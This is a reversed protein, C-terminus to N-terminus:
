REGDRQSAEKKAAEAAAKLRARLPTAYGEKNVQRVRGIALGGDPVDRTVTTGTAVYAGDGITVPAVLQSDSGVFAGAGIVTRRKQFGDYNCIITGAGLNAKEGVEADGLYALHNAKAGKKLRTNKTEVFNGVHSEEELHSDPRLHAFPGLQVGNEVVSRTLVCYPKIHVQEGVVADTLVSGVDVLTRAGVRTRGRLRVGVELCVDPALQVTDDVWVDGRVTVGESAWRDAIRRYLVKEVAALQARDNVGALVEPESLVTQVGHQLALQQVIDTLYFEGQSNDDSLSTLASLAVDGRLAYFGANVEQVAREEESTLDRHERIERVHGTEDRLVRGYGTPDGALFTMFSLAISENVAALLPRLDEAQLLPADGTLILVRDEATLSGRVAALGSRAADGTGCPTQQVAFRLREVDGHERLARQVPEATVPNVVVVVEDAGCDLASQVPYYLLPRGCAPHLVKPLTSKMRTGHGAAMVVAISRSM